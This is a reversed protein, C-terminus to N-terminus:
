DIKKWYEQKFLFNKIIKKYSNIIVSEDCTQEYFEKAKSIKEYDISHNKDKLYSYLSDFNELDLENVFKSYAEDLIGSSYFVPLKFYFAERLPLSSRGVLSTMTLAFSNKYLSIIQELSLYNLLFIHNQLNRKEIENIIYKKNGKDHGTFVLIFENNNQKLMMEFSKILYIHNKHPWFQAPYFLVKKKPLNFDEFIKDFDYKTKIKEYYTPLNPVFAQIEFLDDRNSNYSIKVDEETKKTDVVIKFARDVAYKYSDERLQYNSQSYKNDRYEPFYPISKHQMEWISYVFPTSDCFQVFSSPSIFFLVDINREKIKKELPNKIKFVSFVKKLLKFKHLFFIIKTFFNLKFNLLNYNGKKKLYNLSDKNTVFCEYSYNKELSKSLFELRTQSVNFGGGSNIQSEFFIGIKM